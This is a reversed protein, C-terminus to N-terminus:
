RFRVVRGQKRDAVYVLGAGDVAIASPSRLEGATGKPPAITAVRRGEADFITVSRSADDVVYRRGLADRAIAVPDSLEWEPGELVVTATPWVGATGGERAPWGAAPAGPRLTFIQRPRSALLVDLTGDEARTAALPRAPLPVAGRLVFGPGYRLVQESGADVLDIVGAPGTALAVIKKVPEPTDGARAPRQPVVRRGDPTTVGKEDWTWVRGAPDVTVGRAPEAGSPASQGGDTRVLSGDEGDLVVLGKSTVALGIPSQVVPSTFREDITRGGLTDPRDGAARDVLAALGRADAVAETDGEAPLLRKALSADRKAAADRALRVRARAAAPDAAHETLLRVELASAAASEGRLRQCLAAAELAAAADPARPSRRLVDLFSARAADLDARPNAPDMRLLGMRFAAAAAVDGKADSRLINELAARAAEFDRGPTGMEGLRTAPYARTAAALRPDAPM